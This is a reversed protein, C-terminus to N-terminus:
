DRRTVPSPTCPSSLATLSIWAWPHYLQSREEPDREAWGVGGGTPGVPARALRTGPLLTPMRPPCRLPISAVRLLLICPSHGPHQLLPTPPGPLPLKKDM